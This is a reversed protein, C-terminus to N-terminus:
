LGQEDAIMKMILCEQNRETQKGSNGKPFCSAAMEPNVMVFGVDALDITADLHLGSTTHYEPMPWSRLTRPLTFFLTIEYMVFGAM